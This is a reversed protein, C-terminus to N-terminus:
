FGLSYLGRGRFFVFAITFATRKVIPKRRDKMIPFRFVSLFIFSPIQGQTKNGPSVFPDMTKM